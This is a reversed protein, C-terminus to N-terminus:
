GTIMLKIDLAFQKKRMYLSTYPLIKLLSTIKRKELLEIRIKYWRKMKDILMIREAHQNDQKELEKLMDLVKIHRYYIELQEQISHKSVNTASDKHRRYEMLVENYCYLGDTQVALYWLMADHPSESFWYKVFKEKLDKRFCYTCGPYFVSLCLKDFEIKELKKKGRNGKNKLVNAGKEYFSHFGSVLLQIHQYSNMKIVMKEVKDLHWIDDQDCLFILDGQTSCIGLFFNKKWGVNEEGYIFIWNKLKYTDIYKCVISITNDSSGDDRIIVEDILLTQNRISDLQEVIYKEGNYTTIVLSIM